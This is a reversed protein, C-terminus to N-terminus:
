RSRTAALVPADGFGGNVADLWEGVAKYHNVAERYKSPPIDLAEALTEFAESIQQQIPEEMSIEENM